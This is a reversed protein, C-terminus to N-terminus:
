GAESKGRSWIYFWLMVIGFFGDYVIGAWIMPKAQGGIFLHFWGAALLLKALGGVLAVIRLEFPRKSLAWYAFGIVFVFIFFGYYFFRFPSSVHIEDGYYMRLHESMSAMAIASLIM